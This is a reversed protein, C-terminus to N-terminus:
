RTLRILLKVLLREFLEFSTTGVGFRALDIDILFLFRLVDLKRTCVEGALLQSHSDYWSLLVLEGAGLAEQDM